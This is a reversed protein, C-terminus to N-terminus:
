ALVRDYIAELLAEAFVPFYEAAALPYNEWTLVLYVEDKDVISGRRVSYPQSTLLVHFTIERRPTADVKCSFTCARCPM